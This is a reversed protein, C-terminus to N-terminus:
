ATSCTRSSRRRCSSRGGHDRAADAVQDGAGSGLLARQQGRSRPVLPRRAMTRHDDAASQRRTGREWAGDARASGAFTATVSSRVLIEQTVSLTLNDIAPAIASMTGGRSPRGDDARRRAARPANKSVISNIGGTASSHAPGSTFRAFRAPTRGTGCRAATGGSRCSASTGEARASTKLGVAAGTRPRRRHRQRSARRRGPFGSDCAASARRRRQLCRVQHRSAARWRIM